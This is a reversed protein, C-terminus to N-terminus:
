CRQREDRGGKDRVQNEACETRHCCHRYRDLHAQLSEGPTEGARRWTQAQQVTSTSAGRTVLHVSCELSAPICSAASTNATTSKRTVPAGATSAAPASPTPNPVTPAPFSGSESPPASDLPAIALSICQPAPAPILATTVLPVPATSTTALPDCDMDQRDAGVTKAGTLDLMLKTYPNYEKSTNGRLGKPEENTSLSGFRYRMGLVMHRPEFPGTIYKEWFIKRKSRLTMAMAVTNDGWDILGKVIWVLTLLDSPPGGYIWIGQLENHWKAAHMQFPRLEKRTWRVEAAAKNLRRVAVGLEMPGVNPDPFVGHQLTNHAVQQTWTAERFILGLRERKESGNELFREIKLTGDPPEHVIVGILRVRANTEGRKLVNDLEKNIAGYCKAHGASSPLPGDAQAHNEKLAEEAKADWPEREAQPLAAFADFSIKRLKGFNLEKRNHEKRWVEIAEDHLGPNARRWFDHGFSRHKRVPEDKLAGPGNPSRGGTGGVSSNNVYTYLQQGVKTGTFYWLKDEDSIGIKPM